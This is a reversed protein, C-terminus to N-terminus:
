TGVVTDSEDKLQSILDVTEQGTQTDYSPSTVEAIRARHFRMMRAGGMGGAGRHMPMPMSQRRDNDKWKLEVRTVGKMGRLQDLIWKQIMPGGMSDSTKHFMQIWDTIRGLRMDIQHAARQLKVISADQWEDLLTGRMYIFGFVGTLLLLLGAPLLVLLNLRQQLSKIAMGM